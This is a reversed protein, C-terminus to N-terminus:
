PSWDGNFNTQATEINRILYQNNYYINVDNINHKKLLETVVSQVTQISPQLHRAQFFTSVSQHYIRNFDQTPLKLNGTIAATLVNQFTLQLHCSSSM